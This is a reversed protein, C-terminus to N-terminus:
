VGKRLYIELFASVDKAGRTLARECYQVGGVDSINLKMEGDTHM